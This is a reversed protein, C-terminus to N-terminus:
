LFGFNMRSGIKDPPNFIGIILMGYHNGSMRLAPRIIREFPKVFIPHLTYFICSFVKESFDPFILLKQNVVAKPCSLESIVRTKGSKTSFEKVELRNM